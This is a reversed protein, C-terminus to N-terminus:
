RPTKALEKEKAVFDKVIERALEQEDDRPDSAHRSYEGVWLKQGSASELLFVSVSQDGARILLMRAAGLGAAIQRFEQHATRYPLMLPWGVVRGEHQNALEIGIREALREEFATADPTEGWLWGSPAVAVLESTVPRLLRYGLVAAALLLVVASFWLVIRTRPTVGPVIEDSKVAAPEDALRILPAYSGKPFEIRLADAQGASSYYEELKTRLRRAEVRVIPDTRPDYAGNRDFVERGLVYEKIQDEEGKLKAEVTFRLFRCLREAKVFGGSELIKALHARVALADLEQMPVHESDCQFRTM